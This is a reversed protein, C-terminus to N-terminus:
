VVSLTFGHIHNTLYIYAAKVLFLALHTVCVCLQYFAIIYEVILVM